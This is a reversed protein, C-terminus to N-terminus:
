NPHVASPQEPELLHWIDAGFLTELGRVVRDTPLSVRILVRDTQRDIRLSTLSEGIGLAAGLPELALSGVFTRLNEEITEPFEGSLVVWLAIREPEASTLTVSLQQQGALMLGIPTDLPLALPEVMYLTFPAGQVSAEHYHAARALGSPPEPSKGDLYRLLSTWGEPASEGLVVGDEAVAAVLYREAGILGVVRARPPESITETLEMAVATKAVAQAANFGGRAVLLPGGPYAGIAVRHVSRPDVGYRSSWETLRREPLLVDLLRGLAPDAFARKLDAVLIWRAGDPLALAPDPLAPLSPGASLTPTARGAAGGCAVASLVMAALLGRAFTNRGYSGGIM